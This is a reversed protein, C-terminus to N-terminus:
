IADTSYLHDCPDCLLVNTRLATTLAVVLALSLLLTTFQTTKEKLNLRYQIIAATRRVSPYVSPSLVSVPAIPQQQATAAAAIIYAWMKSCRYTTSENFLLDYGVAFQTINQRTM